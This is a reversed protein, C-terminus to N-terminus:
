TRCVPSPLHVGSAAACSIGAEAPPGCMSSTARTVRGRRASPSPRPHESSATPGLDDLGVDHVARLTRYHDIAELAADLDGLEALAGVAEAFLPAVLEVRRRYQAAAQEASLAAGVSTLVSRAAERRAEQDLPLDAQEVQLWLSATEVALDIFSGAALQIARRFAHRADDVDASAGDAKYRWSLVRAINAVCQAHAGSRELLRPEHVRLATLARDLLDADGSAHALNAQVSALNLGQVVREPDDIGLEDIIEQLDAIASSLQGVDTSDAVSTVQHASRLSARRSPHPVRALAPAANTETAPAEPLTAAV